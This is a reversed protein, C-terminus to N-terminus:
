GERAFHARLADVVRDLDALRKDSATELFLTNRDYLFADRELRSLGALEFFESGSAATPLRRLALRSVGDFFVLALDAGRRRLVADVLVGYDNQASPPLGIFTLRREGLDTEHFASDAFERVEDWHDEGVARLAPDYAEFRKETLPLIARRIAFPEDRVALFVYLWSRWPEPAAEPDGHLAQALALEWPERRLQHSLLLDLANNEATDNVVQAGRRRLAEAHAANMFHHDLWTTESLGGRGVAAEIAPLDAAVLPLGLCRLRQIAPRTL